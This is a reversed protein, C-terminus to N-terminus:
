EPLLYFYSNGSIGASVFVQVHLDLILLIVWTCKLFEANVSFLKIIAQITFSSPYTFSFM